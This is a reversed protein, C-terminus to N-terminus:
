APPPSPRHRRHPLGRRPHRPLRIRLPHGPEPRQVAPRPLPPRVPRLARRAPWRLAIAPPRHVEPCLGMHEADEALDTGAWRGAVIADDLAFPPEAAPAGSLHATLVAGSLRMVIAVPGLFFRMPARRTLQMVLTGGSVYALDDHILPAPPSTNDVFDDHRLWWCDHGDWAPSPAPTAPESVLVPEHAENFTVDDVHACPTGAAAQVLIAEVRHDDPDGNWGRIVLLWTGHGADHFARAVDQVSAEAFVEPAIVELSPDIHPFVEAAFVNDIGGSGDLPVEPPHEPSWGDAPPHELEQPPVCEHGDTVASLTSATDYGDLDYGIHRWADGEAQDLVVNRLAFVLPGVDGEAGPPPRPPPRTTEAPTGGESAGDAPRGGDIGADDHATSGCGGALVMGVILPLARPHTM